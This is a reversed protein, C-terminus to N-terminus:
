AGHRVLTVTSGVATLLIDMIRQSLHGLRIGQLVAAAAALNHDIDGVEAARHHTDAVEELVTDEEALHIDAVALGNDEEQHDEEVEVARRHSDAAVEEEEANRRVERVEALGSHRGEEEDAAEAVNRRVEQVEALGNHLEEEEATHHAAPGAL